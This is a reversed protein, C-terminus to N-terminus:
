TTPAPSAVFESVMVVILRAPPVILSPTPLAALRTAAGVAKMANAGVTDTLEPDFLAVLTLQVAVGDPRIAGTAGPVIMFEHVTCGPVHIPLGVCLEALGKATTDVPPFVNLRVM